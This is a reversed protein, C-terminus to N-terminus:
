VHNCFASPACPADACSHTIQKRCSERGPISRPFPWLTVDAGGAFVENGNSDISAEDYQFIGPSTLGLGTPQLFRVAGDLWETFESFKFDGGQRVVSGYWVDNVVSKVGAQTLQRYQVKVALHGSYEDISFSNQIFVSVNAPRSSPSCYAALDTLIQSIGHYRIVSFGYQAVAETTWLTAFTAQDCNAYSSAFNFVLQQIRGRSGHFLPGAYLIHPPVTAQFDGNGNQGNDDNEGNDGNGGNQGNDALVMLVGFFIVTFFLSFKM